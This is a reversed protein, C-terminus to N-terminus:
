LFTMLHEWKFNMGHFRFTFHLCCFSVIHGFWFFEINSHVHIYVCFDSLCLFYISNNPYNHLLCPKLNQHLIYLVFDSFMLNNMQSGYIKFMHLVFVRYFTFSWLLSLVINSVCIFFEYGLCMSFDTVWFSLHMTLHYSFPNWLFPLATHLFLSQHIISSLM